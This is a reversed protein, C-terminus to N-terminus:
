NILVNTFIFGFSLQVLEHKKKILELIILKYTNINILYVNKLMTAM